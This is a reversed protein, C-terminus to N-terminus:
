ANMINMRSSIRGMSALWSGDSFSQVARATHRHLTDLGRAAHDQVNSLMDQTDDYGLNKTTVSTSTPPSAAFDSVHDEFDTPHQHTVFAPPPSLTANSYRPSRAAFRSQAERRIGELDQCNNYVQQKLELLETNLKEQSGVLDQIQSSLHELSQAPCSHDKVSIDRTSKWEPASEAPATSMPFAVPAEEMIPVFINPDKHFVFDMPPLLERFSFSPPQMWLVGGNDALHDADAGVSASAVPSSHHLAAPETSSGYVFPLYTPEFPMAPPSRPPAAQLDQRSVAGSSAVEATMSRFQSGESMSRATVMEPAPQLRPTINSLKTISRVHGRPVAMGCAPAAYVVQHGQPVPHIAGTPSVPVVRSTNMLESSTPSNALVPSPM